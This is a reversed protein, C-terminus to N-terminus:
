RTCRGTIGEERCIERRCAGQAQGIQVAQAARRARRAGSAMSPRGTRLRQGAQGIVDTHVRSGEVFGGVAAPQYIQQQRVQQQNSGGSFINLAKAFRNELEALALHPPSLAAM